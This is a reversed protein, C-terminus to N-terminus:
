NNQCTKMKIHRAMSCKAKFFSGCLDCQFSVKSHVVTMHKALAYKNKCFTSCKQCKLPNKMAAFKTDKHQHSKQHNKLTISYNTSYNCRHCKYRKQHDKEHLKQHFNLNKIRRYKRGCIECIFVEGDFDCVFTKPKMAACERPHQIGMHIKLNPAKFFKQDCFKCGFPIEKSHFKNMHMLISCKRLKKACFKCKVKNSKSSKKRIKPISKKKLIKDSNEHESKEEIIQINEEIVENEAPEQKIGGFIERLKALNESIKSKITTKDPLLRHNMSLSSDCAELSKECYKVGKNSM